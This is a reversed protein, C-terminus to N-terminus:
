PTAEPEKLLGARKLSDVIALVVTYSYNDLHGYRLNEIGQRVGREYDNLEGSGAAALALGAHRDLWTHIADEALRTALSDTHAEHDAPNASV